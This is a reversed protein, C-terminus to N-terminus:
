PSPTAPMPLERRIWCNIAFRSDIFRGSPGTVPLVEHPAWSPFVLLSDSVPEIDQFVSDEQQPGFPYLRLAGGSFGKPQAHFYYVASVVRQKGNDSVRGTMTDIHRRYFAGDGHAVLQLEVDCPDFSSLHLTQIFDPVLALLRSTLIPKFAGIDRLGMSLRYAPNHIDERVKTPKFRAENSIAHDLLGAVAEQGLFGTLVRYPPLTTFARLVPQPPDIDPLAETM